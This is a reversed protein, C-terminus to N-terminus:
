TRPGEFRDVSGLADSDDNVGADTALRSWGASLRCHEVYARGGVMPFEERCENEGLCM